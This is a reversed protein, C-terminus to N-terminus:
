GFCQLSCRVCLRPAASFAVRPGGTERPQPAVAPATDDNENMM